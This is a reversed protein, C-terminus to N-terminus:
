SIPLSFHLKYTKVNSDFYEKFDKIEFMKVYNEIIIHGFGTNGSTHDANAANELDVVLFGDPCTIRIHCQRREKEVYAVAKITNWFIENFLIFFHILTSHEDGILLSKATDDFDFSVNFLYDQIWKLRADETASDLWANEAKLLEDNSVFYHGTVTRYEAFDEGAFVNPVSHFLATFVINMMTVSGTTAHLDKKWDGNSQRYSYTIANAIAAILSAGQRARNIMRQTKMTDNENKAAYLANTVSSVLNKISHNMSTFTEKQGKLKAEAVEKAHESEIRKEKEWQNVHERPMLGIHGESFFFASPLDKKELLSLFVPFEAETQFDAIRQLAGHLEPFLVLRSGLLELWFNNEMYAKYVGGDYKVRDNQTIKQKDRWTAHCYYHAFSGPWFNAHNPDNKAIDPEATLHQLWSILLSEVDELNKESDKKSLLKVFEHVYHLDPTIGVGSSGWKDRYSDQYLVFDEYQWAKTDEPRDKRHLAKILTEPDPSSKKLELLSRIAEVSSNKGEIKNLFEDFANGVWRSLLDSKFDNMLNTKPFAPYKAIRCLFNRYSRLCKPNNLSFMAPVASDVVEIVPCTQLFEKLADEGEAMKCLLEDDRYTLAFDLSDPNKVATCYKIIRTSAFVFDALSFSKEDIDHRNNLDTSSKVYKSNLTKQKQGSINGALMKIFDSLMADFDSKKEFLDKLKDLIDKEPKRCFQFDTFMLDFAAGLRIEVDGRTCAKNGLRIKLSDRDFWEVALIRDAGATDVIKSVDKRSCCVTFFVTDDKQLLENLKKEDYAELYEFPLEEFSTKEVNLAFMKLKENEFKITDSM